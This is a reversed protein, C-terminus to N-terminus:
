NNSNQLSYKAAREIRKLHLLAKVIAMTSRRKGALSFSLNESEILMRLSEFPHEIDFHALTTAIYTGALLEQGALPLPDSGALIPVGYSRAKKFISSELFWSPRMASDILCFPKQLTSIIKKLFTGRRGMWKGFGWPLAPIAGLQQIQMFTEILPTGDSISINTGIAIVELREKTVIQRGAIIFFRGYINHSLSIVREDKHPEIKIGFSNLRPPNNKINQFFNQGSMEALLAIQVIPEPTSKASYPVLSNINKCLNIFLQTLNYLSHIHLHAEIAIRYQPLTSYPKEHM